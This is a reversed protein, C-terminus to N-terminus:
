PCRRLLQADPVQEVYSGLGIFTFYSNFKDRLQTIQAPDSGRPRDEIMVALFRGDGDQAVLDIVDTDAVGLWPVVM